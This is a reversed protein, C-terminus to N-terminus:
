ETRPDLAVRLRRRARHLLARSTGAAITLHAAIEEHTFGEIDHLVFVARYDAPLAAIARELDVADAHGFSPAPSPEEDVLQAMSRRARKRMWEASVRVTIGVLWTGLSADWRFSSLRAVARIWADQVIDDADSAEGGTLRLVLRLLRPTHRRYLLRFAREDGGLIQAALARDTPEESVAPVALSLAM